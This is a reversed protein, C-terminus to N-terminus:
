PPARWGGSARGMRSSASAASRGPWRAPSLMTQAATVTVQARPGPALRGSWARPRGCIPPPSARRSAATCSGCGIMPGSPGRGRSSAAAAAAARLEPSRAGNEAALEMALEYADAAQGARRRDRALLDGRLRHLEPLYYFPRGTGVLEIAQEVVELGQGHGEAVGLADGLLGLYYPHDLEAGTGLYTALGARLQETGDGAGGASRAWGGLIDAQAARIPFGHEDATAM